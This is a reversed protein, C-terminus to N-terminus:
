FLANLRDVGITALAAGVASAAGLAARWLLVKIRRRRPSAGSSDASPKAMLPGPQSATM